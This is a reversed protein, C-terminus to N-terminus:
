GAYTGFLQQQMRCTETFGISSHTIYSRIDSGIEARERQTRTM